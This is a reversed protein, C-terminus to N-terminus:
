VNKIEYKAILDENFDIGIGPEEPVYLFGDKAKLPKKLLKGYNLIDSTTDFYELIFSDSDPCSAALQVHIEHFAHPSVPINWTNAITIVKRWETIGGVVTVDPMWIDAANSELLQKFDWRTSLIEGTAIPIKTINKLKKSEEIADPAFPEEIWDVGIDALRNLNKQSVQYIKWANNLDLFLKRGNGLVERAAQVRKLDIEFDVGGVKMKAATFGREVYGKMEKSIVEIENEKGELKYYGGSAYVPIKKRYGGLIKFLPQRCAKAMIDWLAIDIVSIARLYIGRRGWRVTGNFMKEWIKEVFFPDENLILPKLREELIAKGEFSSFTLGWGVIDQDTTIKVILYERSKILRTSIFKPVDLPVSVIKAEVREIKM